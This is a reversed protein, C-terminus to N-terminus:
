GQFPGPNFRGSGREALITAGELNLHSAQAETVNAVASNSEIGGLQFSLSISLISLLVVAIIRKM